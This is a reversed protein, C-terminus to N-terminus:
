DGEGARWIEVMGMEVAGIMMRRTREREFDNWDVSGKMKLNFDDLLKDIMKICQWKYISWLFEEKRDDIEDDYGFGRLFDDFSCSLVKRNFDVLLEDSVILGFGCGDDFTHYNSGSTRSVDFNIMEIMRNRVLEIADDDLVSIRKVDLRFDDLLKDLMEIRRRRYFSVLKKGKFLICDKKFDSLSYSLITRSFDDFLQKVSKVTFDVVVNEKM